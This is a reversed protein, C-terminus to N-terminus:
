VDEMTQAFLEEGIKLSRSCSEICFNIGSELNKQLEDAYLDLGKWRLEKQIDELTKQKSGLDIIRKLFDRAVKDRLYERIFSLERGSLIKGGLM